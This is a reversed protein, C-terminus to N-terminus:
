GTALALYWGVALFVANACVMGIPSLLLDRAYRLELTNMAVILATQVAVCGVLARGTLMWLALTIESIAVLWLVGGARKTGVVRAVIQRHRPLVDLAKFLLGFLLWVMAVGLRLWSLHSDFEFPVFSM